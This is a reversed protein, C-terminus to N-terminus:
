GAVLDFELTREAEDQGPPIDSFVIVGNEATDVLFEWRQTTGAGAMGESEEPVPLLEDSELTVGAPVEVEWRYGTSPNAPLEVAFRDGAAVQIETGADTYVPVDGGTRPTEEEGGCAAVVLALPVLLALIIPLRRM